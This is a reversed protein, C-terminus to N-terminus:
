ESLEDLINKILYECIITDNTESVISLELYQTDLDYEPKEDPIIIDKYGLTYKLIDESPNVIIIRKREAEPCFTIKGDLSRGLKIM